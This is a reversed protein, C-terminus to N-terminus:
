IYGKKRAEEFIVEYISTMPEGSHMAAKHERLIASPSIKHRRYTLWGSYLNQHIAQIRDFANVIEAEKTYGKRLELFLEEFESRLGEPLGSLLKGLAFNERTEQTKRKKEDYIFTDGAYIEILDHILAMKLMRLKDLSKPLDAEFIILFMALHWSHEADNEARDLDPYYNCREVKKLNELEGLFGLLERIRAKNNPTETM